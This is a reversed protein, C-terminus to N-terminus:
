AADSSALRPLSEVINRWGSREDQGEIRKGFFQIIIDGAEDYAEISTVHGKDTPKRVAWTEAIRDTRLHLHFDEDMVNLWPGMARIDSIPGSHIQICGRNGVFCMIPLEAAASLDMMAGVTGRELRWAYDDGVHSIAQLRKLKLKKLIGVFQHTDTMRSWRSRLEELPVASEEEAEGAPPEAIDVGPSQDEAVIGDILRQWAALDSAPRLHIKHVADGRADFFQLSRRTEGEHVKEVAFGHAWHAPFMRTDIKEGLMMAAHRGPVFKDYVGIKEHVASENRTLAMVEGVAELPPFIREFDIEVRTAGDGCWAAVFEAESIGLESALDRERTKPNDARAKKIAEASPRDTKNM